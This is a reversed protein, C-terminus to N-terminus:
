ALRSQLLAMGLMFVVIFAIVWFEFVTLMVGVGIVASLLAGALLFNPIRAYILVFAIIALMMLGGQWQLIIPVGTLSAIIETLEFVGPINGIVALTAADNTTVPPTLDPLIDQTGVGTAGAGSVFDSVLGAISVAVGAPNQGWAIKGDVSGIEDPVTGFEVAYTDGTDVAATLAPFTLKDTAADFDSVLAVEGQPAFTDTTTLIRLTANNWFDNAETLIADVLTTTTGSDATGLTQTTEIIDEPQYQLVDVSSVTIVFDDTYPLANDSGMVWDNANDPVSAAGLAISDFGDGAVAGDISIELDTTDATVAIEHEGTSVNIAVAEVTYKVEVYVQTCRGTANDRELGIIVQLAAFDAPAWTGGGPRDLAESYTQWSSGPVQVKTGIEENAGLRLGPQASATHPLGGGGQGEIRFYVTVSDITGGIDPLSLNYADKEQTTNATFVFTGADDPSGPPDDVAEWHTAAGTVGAINTYDGIGNPILNVTQQPIGASIEQSASIYINFADTKQLVVTSGTFSTDVFGDVVVGFDDGLELGADDAITIRGDRISSLAFNAIQSNDTSFALAQSSNAALATNFVLRDTALMHPLATLGLTVRTDRGDADTFGNGALFEVNLTVDASLQTYSTGNTENIAIAATFAAYVPLGLVGVLALAWFVSGAVRRVKRM